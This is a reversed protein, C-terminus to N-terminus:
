EEPLIEFDLINRGGPGNLYDTLQCYIKVKRNMLYSNDKLNLSQYPILNEDGTTTLKVPIMSNVDSEFITDALVINEHVGLAELDKVLM